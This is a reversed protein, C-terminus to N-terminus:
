WNRHREKNHWDRNTPDWIALNMHGVHPRGSDQPGWTSGMNAVHVKGDTINLLTARRKAIQKKIPGQADVYGQLIWREASEVCTHAGGLCSSMSPVIRLNTTKAFLNIQIVIRQLHIFLHILPPQFPQISTYINAHSQARMSFCANIYDVRRNERNYYEM